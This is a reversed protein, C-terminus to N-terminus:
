SSRLAEDAIERKTKGKKRRLNEKITEPEGLWNLKECTDLETCKSCLDYGKENACVRIACDPPGGGEECGACYAYKNMWKLAKETEPWNIETGGPIMGGWEKIGSMNIYKNAEAMTKAMTGDGLFCTGCTIGCPGVQKKVKFLEGM